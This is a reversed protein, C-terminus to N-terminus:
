RNHLRLTAGIWVISEYTELAATLTSRTAPPYGLVSFQVLSSPPRQSVGYEGAHQCGIRMTFARNEFCTRGGFTPTRKLFATVQNGSSETKGLPGKLANNTGILTFLYGPSPVTSPALCEAHRGLSLPLSPM